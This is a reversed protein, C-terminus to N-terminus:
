NERKAIIEFVPPCVVFESPSREITELDAFLEVQDHETLLGMAVLKPTYIHWWTKLWHFMADGARGLRQHVRISEITLGANACFAPVKGMIDTDGGRAEWSRITADVAKSMSSRRPATTMARYNFYDHIVLRGGPALLSAAERVVGAPDKVFCLVWRTYALDYPGGERVADIEGLAHVDGVVGRLHALSRSAAQENFWQIYTASEDVGVVSGSPTVLAALDFSAYGPGCGIDLSRKGPAIGADRWAAHAADAWLRHQFSLRALEDAGTGLVYERPPTTNPMITM